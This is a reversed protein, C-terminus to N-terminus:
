LAGGWLSSIACDLGLPDALLAYGEGGGNGMWMAAAGVLIALAATAPVARWLLRGWVFWSSQEEAARVRITAMVRTEFGLEARATDRPPALKDARRLVSWIRDHPTENM